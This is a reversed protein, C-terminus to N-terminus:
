LWSHKIVYGADSKEYAPDNYFMARSLTYVVHFGMDMGCGGIVLGEHKAHRKFGTLQAIYWDICQIRKNDLVVFFSIRRSMGSQSVYKVLCHVTEDPKIIKHLYEFASKYDELEQGKKNKTM